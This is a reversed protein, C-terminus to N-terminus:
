GMKFTDGDMDVTGDAVYNKFDDYVVMADAAM